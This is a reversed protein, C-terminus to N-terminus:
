EWPGEWLKAGPNNRLFSEASGDSPNDSTDYEGEGLPPPDGNAVYYIVPPTYTKPAEFNYKKSLLLRAAAIKGAETGYAIINRLAKVAYAAHDPKSEPAKRIAQRIEKPSPPKSKANLPKAILSVRVPRTRQM